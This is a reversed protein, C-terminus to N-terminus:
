RKAKRRKRRVKVTDRLLWVGGRPDPRPGRIVGPETLPFRDLRAM